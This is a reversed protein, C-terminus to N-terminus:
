HFNKAPWVMLVRFFVLMALKNSWANSHVFSFRQDSVITESSETQHPDSKHLRVHFVRSDGFSSSLVIGLL